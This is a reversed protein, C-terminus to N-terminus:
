PTVEELKETWLGVLVVCLMTHLSERSERAFAQRIDEFIAKDVQDKFESNFKGGWTEEMQLTYAIGNALSARINAQHVRLIRVTQQELHKIAQEREGLRPVILADPFHAKLADTVIHSRQDPDPVGKLPVHILDSPKHPIPPEESNDFPKRNPLNPDSM